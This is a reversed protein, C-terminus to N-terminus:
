VNKYIISSEQFVYYFIMQYIFSQQLTYFYNLVNCTFLLIQNHFFTLLWFVFTHPIQACSCLFGYLLISSYHMEFFTTILISIQVMRRDKVNPGIISFSYINCEKCLIVRYVSTNM